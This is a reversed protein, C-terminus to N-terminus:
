KLKTMYSVEIERTSRQNEAATATLQPQGPRTECATLPNVFLFFPATIYIPEQRKLQVCRSRSVTHHSVTGSSHVAARQNPFPLAPRSPVIHLKSGPILSTSNLASPSICIKSVCRLLKAPTTSSIFNLFFLARLRSFLSGLSLPQGPLSRYQFIEAKYQQPRKVAQM